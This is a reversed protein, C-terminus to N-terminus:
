VGPLVFGVAVDQAFTQSSLNEPSFIGYSFTKGNRLPAAVFFGNNAYASVKWFITRELVSQELTVVLIEAVVGTVPTGFNIQTQIMRFVLMDNLLFHLVFKHRIKLDSRFFRGFPEAENRHIPDIKFSTTCFVFPVGCQNVDQKCGGYEHQNDSQEIEGIERQSLRRHAHAADVGTLHHTGRGGAKPPAQNQFVYEPRGYGQCTGDQQNQKKLFARFTHFQNGSIDTEFCM